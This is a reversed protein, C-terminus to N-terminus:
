MVAAINLTQKNTVLDDCVMLWRLMLPFANCRDGHCKWFLGAIMGGFEGPPLVRCRARPSTRQAHCCKNYKNRTIFQLESYSCFILTRNMLM